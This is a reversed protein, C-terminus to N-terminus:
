SIVENKLYFLFLFNNPLNKTDEYHYCSLVYSTKIACLRLFLNLIEGELM